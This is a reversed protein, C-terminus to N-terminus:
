KSSGYLSITIEGCELFQESFVVFSQKMLSYELNFIILFIGVFVFKQLGVFLVFLFFIINLFHFFEEVRSQTSLYGFFESNKKKPQTESNLYKRYTM